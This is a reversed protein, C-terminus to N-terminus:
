SLVVITRTNPTVAKRLVERPPDYEQKLVFLARRDIVFVFPVVEELLDEDSDVILSDDLTIVANEEWVDLATVCMECPDGAVEEDIIVEHCPSPREAFSDNFASLLGMCSMCLLMFLKFSLATLAIYPKM